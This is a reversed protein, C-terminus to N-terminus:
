KVPRCYTLFGFYIEFPISSKKLCDGVNSPIICMGILLILIGIVVPRYFLSYNIM